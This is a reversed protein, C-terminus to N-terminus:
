PTLRRRAMISGVAHGAVLIAQTNLIRLRENTSVKVAFSLNFSAGSDEGVALPIDALTVTNAANRHQYQLVPTNGATTTMSLWIDFDGAVLQGTDVIVANVIPNLAIGSHFEGTQLVQQQLNFAIDREGVLFVPQVSPEFDLLGITGVLRLKDILDATLQPFDLQPRTPDRPPM